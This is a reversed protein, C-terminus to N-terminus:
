RWSAFNYLINWLQHIKWWATGLIISSVGIASYDVRATVEGGQLWDSWECWDSDSLPKLASSVIVVLLFNFDQQMRSMKPKM